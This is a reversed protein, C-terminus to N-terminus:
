RSNTANAIIRPSPWHASSDIQFRISDQVTPIAPSGRLPVNNVLTRRPSKTRYSKFHRYCTLHRGGFAALYLKFKSHRALTTSQRNAVLSGNFRGHLMRLRPDRAVLNQLKDNHFVHPIDPKWNRRYSGTRWPGTEVRSPRHGSGFHASPLQGPHRWLGKHGCAGVGGQHKQLWKGLRTPRGQLSKTAGRSVDGNRGNRDGNGPVDFLSRISIPM